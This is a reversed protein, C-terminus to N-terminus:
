DKGRWRTGFDLYLRLRLNSKSGGICSGLDCKLMLHSFIGCIDRGALVSERVGVPLAVRGHGFRQKPMYACLQLPQCRGETAALAGPKGEVEFPHDM